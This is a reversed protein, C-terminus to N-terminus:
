VEESTTMMTTSMRELDRRLRVRFESRPLDRLMTEIQSRSYDPM